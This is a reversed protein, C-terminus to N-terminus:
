DNLIDYISFTLTAQTEELWEHMKHYLYTLIGTESSIAQVLSSMSDEVPNLNQNM